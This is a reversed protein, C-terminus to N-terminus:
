CVVDPPPPSFFFLYCINCGCRCDTFIEGNVCLDDNLAYYGQRYYNLANERKQLDYLLNKEIIKLHKAM